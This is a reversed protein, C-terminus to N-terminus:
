QSLNLVSDFFSCTSSWDELQIKKSTRSDKKINVYLVHNRLVISYMPSALVQVASYWWREETLWVITFLPIWTVHYFSWIGCVRCQVVLEVDLTTSSVYKESSHMGRFCGEAEGCCQVIVVDVSIDHRIKKNNTVRHFPNCKFRSNFTHLVTVHKGEVIPICIRSRALKLQTSYTIHTGLVCLQQIRTWM